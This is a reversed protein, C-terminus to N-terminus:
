KILDQCIQEYVRAQFSKTDQELKAMRMEWENKTTGDVGDKAERHLLKTGLGIPEIKHKSVYKSYSANVLVLGEAPALPVEMTVDGEKLAETIYDGPLSQNMVGITAGMMKRIQHYLFSQGKISIVVFDCQNHQIVDEVHCRLIHRFCSSSDQDEEDKERDEKERANNTEPKKWNTFNHFSHTGGWQLLVKKLRKRLDMISECTANKNKTKYLINAPVIYRYRRAECCKRADFSTPISNSM